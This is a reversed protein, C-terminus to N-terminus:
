PGNGRGDGEAWDDAFPLVAVGTDEIIAGSQTGLRVGARAAAPRRVEALPAGRLTVLLPEGSRRVGKLAGICKAKFESVLMTKM